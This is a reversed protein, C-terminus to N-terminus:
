AIECGYPIRTVTYTKILIIMGAFVLCQVLAPKTNPWRRLRYALIVAANTKRIRYPRWVYVHFLLNMVKITVTCNQCFQLM